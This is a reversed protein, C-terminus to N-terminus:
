SLQDMRGLLQRRGDLLDTVPQVALRLRLPGPVGAARVTVALDTGDDVQGAPVLLTATWGDRARGLVGPLRLEGVLVDLDGAEPGSEAPRVMEVEIRPSLERLMPLEADGPEGPYWVLLVSGADARAVWGFSRPWPRPEPVLVRSWWREPEEVGDADDRPAPDEVPDM